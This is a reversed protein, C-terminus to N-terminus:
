ISSCTVVTNIIQLIIYLSFGQIVLKCGDEDVFSLDRIMFKSDWGSYIQCNEVM